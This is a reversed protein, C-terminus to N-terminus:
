IYGCHTPEIVNAPQITNYFKTSSSLSNFRCPTYQKLTFTIKQLRLNKTSRKFADRVDGVGQKSHMSADQQQLRDWGARCGWPFCHGEHKLWLLNIRLPLRNYKTKKEKFLLVSAATQTDRTKLAWVTNLMNLRELAVIVTDRLLTCLFGPVSFLRLLHKPNVAARCVAGNTKCVSM